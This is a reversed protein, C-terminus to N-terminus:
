QSDYLGFTEPFAQSNTDLNPYWYQQEHLHFMQNIFVPTGQLGGTIRVDYSRQDNAKLFMKGSFRQGANIAVPNVFLFRVQYWHTKPASPSTSLCATVESGEFNVDFWGAIGPSLSSSFFFLVSFSFFFSFFLDTDGSMGRFSVPLLGPSVM